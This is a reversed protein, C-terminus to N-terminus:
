VLRFISGYRDRSRTAPQQQVQAVDAKKQNYAFVVSADMRLVDSARSGMLRLMIMLSRSTSPHRSSVVAQRTVELPTDIRLCCSSSPSIAPSGSSEMIGYASM